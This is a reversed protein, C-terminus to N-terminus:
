LKFSNAGSEKGPGNSRGAQTRDAAVHQASADGQAQASGPPPYVLSGRIRAIQEPSFNPFPLCGDARWQSVQAAVSQALESNTGRDRDLYLTQSPLAFSTGSQQVIEILRLFVDEQIALFELWDSTIAYAFVEIDRSSAGFGILRARASEPLLRPHAMLMERAKALIFRLQETSADCRVGLVARILIRDRQSFNVIPMKSLMANPITTVTRDVGRIRTSRIGITEITGVNEGYKCFNGVRIPKDAFLSLSGILNEITPQAALAIALGGVGLGAIIGYVPMGLREAGIALLAAAAVLGLLRMCIRILHADISEPAINPSAIIAEAIVPAARWCLWAIGLFMVGTAILQVASGVENILYVQALALYAFVPTGALLFLPLLLRLLANLFPHGGAGRQSLRYALRLVIAFIGVMLALALWKWVAQGALSSRLWAPMGEILSLPMLWGGGTTRREYLGTVPMSRTYPLDRVRRYFAAARDVTDASFLVEGTQPGAAIRVLAIETHPIVWRVQNTMPFRPFFDAGPVQDFPPLEIRSLTEYLAMAAAGGAKGRSAPALETLDLCQLPNQFRAMLRRFNARTRSPRYEEAFFKAAADSSELFTKLTARPSSRDLPELPHIAEQGAAAPIPLLLAFGALVSLLVVRGRIQDSTQIRM